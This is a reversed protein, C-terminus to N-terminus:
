KDTVVSLIKTQSLVITVTFAKEVHYFEHVFNNGTVTETERDFCMGKGNGMQVSLHRALNWAKTAIKENAPM